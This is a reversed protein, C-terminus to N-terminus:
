RSVATRRALLWLLIVSVLEPLHLAEGVLPIKGRVLDSVATIGIAAALVVSVPLATRARAPRAATVLLLVGYAASFSGLHRDAHAVAGSVDSAFLEPLALLVISVAVAGLLYRVIEPSSHRDANAVLRSIRSAEGIPTDVVVVAPVISLGGIAARFQRCSVCDAVHREVVDAQLAAPENDALASIADEYDSCSLDSGVVSLHQEFRHRRRQV